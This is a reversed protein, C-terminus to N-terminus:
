VKQEYDKKDLEKYLEKKAIKTIYYVCIGSILLSILLGIIEYIKNEGLKNLDSITSGVFVYVIVLPIFGILGFLYHLYSTNTIGLFYNVLNYPIAPSCRLLFNVKKGKSVIAKDLAKFIKYKKLKRSLFSKFLFRGLFFACSCGICSGIMIIVVGIPVSILYNNFAQKYAFGVGVALLVGPVYLITGIVKILILCLSGLIIHKKLYVIFVLFEAKLKDFFVISGTLCLIM